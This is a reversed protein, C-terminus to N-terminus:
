GGQLEAEMRRLNELLKDVEHGTLDYGDHLYHVAFLVFELDNWRQNRLEGLYRVLAQAVATRQDVGGM